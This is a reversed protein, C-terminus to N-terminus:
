LATSSSVESVGTRRGTGGTLAPRPPAELLCASLAGLTLAGVELALALNSPPAAPTARRLMLAVVDLALALLAAIVYARSARKAHHESPAGHDEVVASAVTVLAAGLGLALLRVTLPPLWPATSVRQVVDLATTVTLTTLPISVLADHDVPAATRAPPRM